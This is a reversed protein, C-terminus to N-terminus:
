VSRTTTTQLNLQKAARVQSAVYGDVGEPLIASADTRSHALTFREPVLVHSPAIQQAFQQTLFGANTEPLRFGAASRSPREGGM